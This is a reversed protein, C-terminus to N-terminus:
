LLGGVALGAGAAAVSGVLGLLAYTTGRRAGEAMWLRLTEISATSFTTYGGCLGTGLVAKLETGTTGHGAHLVWGTLVGLAASGSVNILLTGLPLRYPNHRAVVADALFRLVAGLGGALALLLVTM